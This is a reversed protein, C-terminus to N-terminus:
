FNVLMREKVTRAADRALKQLAAKEAEETMGVSGINVTFDEYDTVHDDSWLTKGDAKLTMKLAFAVTLRYEQNVDGRTYSVARLDYSKVVGSLVAEGDRDVKVATMFERVFAETLLGEIDPKGTNNSFIPISLSAIAGPMAGARGAIRYGCGTLMALMVLAFAAQFVGNHRTGNKM